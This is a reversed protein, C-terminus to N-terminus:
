CNPLFCPPSPGLITFCIANTLMPPGVPGIDQRVGQYWLSKGSLNPNSPLTFDFAATPGFTQGAGVFYLPPAILLTGLTDDLPIFAPQTSLFLFYNGIVGTPGVRLRMPCGPVPNGCVALTAPAPIQAEFVDYINCEVGRPFARFRTVKGEFKDLDLTSSKLLVGTPSSPSFGTCTLFHSEEQCFSALTAKEIVGTFTVQASLAPAILAAVIASAVLKSLNM